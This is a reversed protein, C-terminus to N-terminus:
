SAKSGPVKRRAEYADAEAAVQAAYEPDSEMRHFHDRWTEQIKGSFSDWSVRTAKLGKTFM